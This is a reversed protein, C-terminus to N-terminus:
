CTHRSPNKDEERMGSGDCARRGSGEQGRHFCHQSERRNENYKTLGGKVEEHRDYECRWILLSEGKKSQIRGTIGKPYKKKESGWGGQYWAPIRSSGRFIKKEPYGWTRAGRLTKSKETFRPHAGSAKGGGGFRRM